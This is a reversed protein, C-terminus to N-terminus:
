SPLVYSDYFIKYPSTFCQKTITRGFLPNLDCFRKMYIRMRRHKKLIKDHYNHPLHYNCYVYFNKLYYGFIKYLVDEDINMFDSKGYHRILSQLYISRREKSINMYEKELSITLIDNRYIDFYKIYDFNLAYLNYITPFAMGRFVYKHYINYLNNLKFPINTYPNRIRNIRINGENLTFINNVVLKKMETYGFTYKSGNEYLYFSDDPNHLDFFSNRLNQSKAYIGKCRTVFNSFTKTIKQLDSYWLGIQQQMEFFAEYHNMLFLSFYQIRPSVLLMKAVQYQLDYSYSIDFLEGSLQHAHDSFYNLIIYKDFKSM